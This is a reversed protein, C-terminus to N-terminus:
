KMLTALIEDAKDRSSSLVAARMWEDDLDTLALAALADAVKPAKWGGLVVALQIRVRLDPDKTLKLLSTKLAVDSPEKRGVLDVAVRRVRPDAHSLLRSLPAVDDPALLKRTSM